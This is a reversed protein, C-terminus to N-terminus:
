WVECAMIEWVTLSRIYTNQTNETYNLMLFVRGFDPGNGRKCGTYLYEARGACHVCETGALFFGILISFYEGNKRLDVCLVYICQTPLVYFKKSILVTPVYFFCQLQCSYIQMFRIETWGLKWVWLRLRARKGNRATVRLMIWPGSNHRDWKRFKLVCIRGLNHLNQFTIVGLDIDV